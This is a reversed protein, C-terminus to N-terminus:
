SSVMNEVNTPYSIFHIVIHHPPTSHFSIAGSLIMFLTIFSRNGHLTPHVTLRFSSFGHPTSQEPATRPLISELIPCLAVLLVDYSPLFDPTLANIANRGQVKKRGGPQVTWAFQWNIGFNASCGMNAAFDSIQLVRGLFSGSSLLLLDESVDTNKEINEVCYFIWFLEWNRV